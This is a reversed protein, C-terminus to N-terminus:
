CNSLSNWFITLRINLHTYVSIAFGCGIRTKKCQMPIKSFLRTSHHVGARHRGVKQLTRLFCDCHFGRLMFSVRAPRSSLCCRDIQQKMVFPFFGLNHGKENIKKLKGHLFSYLKCSVRCFRERNSM